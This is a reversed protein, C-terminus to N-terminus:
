GAGEASTALFARFASLDAIRVAGASDLAPAFGAGGVLLAVDKPLRSRIEAIERAVEAGRVPSVVSLAVIRPSHRAAAVAVDDAPLDPGLYVVHWGMAAATAAAMMAGFEHREGAPTAVVMTPVGDDEGSAVLMDGLVKRAVASAAHEHAVSLSGAHWADGVHQLLPGLVSEVFDSLSLRVAARSLVASLHRADLAAVAQKAEALDRAIAAGEDSRSAVTPSEAERVEDERVVATLAETPLTAVQGISRGALTARRLLRLREIDEDSYLRRGTASRAPEVAGYRREWARLVDPTLGTRRVVVQIPHRKDQAV